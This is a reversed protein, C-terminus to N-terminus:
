EGGVLAFRTRNGAPGSGSDQMHFDHQVIDRTLPNEPPDETERARPNCLQEMSMFQSTLSPINEATLQLIWDAGHTYVEREDRLAQSSTTYAVLQLRRDWQALLARPGWLTSSCRCPMSCGSASQSRSAAPVPSPDSHSICVESPKRNAPIGASRYTALSQNAFPTGVHQLHAVCNQQPLYVDRGSVNAGAPLSSLLKVGGSFVFVRLRHKSYQIHRPANTKCVGQSNHSDLSRTERCSPWEPPMHPNPPPHPVRSIGSSVWRGADVGPVIQVQPLAPTFGGCFLYQTPKERLEPISGPEGQHSAIVHRHSPAPVFQFVPLPLVGLFGVRGAIMIPPTHDSWPCKFVDPRCNGERSNRAARRSPLHTPHPSPGVLLLFPSPYAPPQLLHPPPPSFCVPVSREWVRRTLLHVPAQLTRVHSSSRTHTHKHTQTHTTDPSPITDRPPAGDTVDGVRVAPASSPFVCPATSYTRRGDLRVPNLGQGPLERIKARPFRTPHHRQDAHKRPPRGGAGM